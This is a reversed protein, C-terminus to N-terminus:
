QSRRSAIWVSKAAEQIAESRECHRFGVSRSFALGVHGSVPLGCRPSSYMDFVDMRADRMDRRLRIAPAAASGSMVMM